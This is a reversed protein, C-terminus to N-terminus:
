CLRERREIFQRDLREGKRADGAKSSGQETCSPLAPPKRDHTPQCQLAIAPERTADKALFLPASRNRLRERSKSPKPTASSM